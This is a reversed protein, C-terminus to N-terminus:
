AVFGARWCDKHYHHTGSRSKKSIVRDGVEIYGVDEGDKKHLCKSYHCPLKDIDIGRRQTIRSLDSWTMTWEYKYKSM